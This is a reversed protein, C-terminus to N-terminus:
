PREKADKPEDMLFWLPQNKGLDIGQSWTKGTVTDIRYLTTNPAGTMQNPGVFLQYRGQSTSQPAPSQARSTAFLVGFIVAVVWFLNKRM